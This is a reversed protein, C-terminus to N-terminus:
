ADFGTSIPALGTQESTGYKAGFYPFTHQIREVPPAVADSVPRVTNLTFMVDFCDTGLPRGNFTDTDFCAKSGLEYPIM